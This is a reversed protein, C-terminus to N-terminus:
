GHAVAEFQLYYFGHCFDVDVGTEQSGALSGEDLLEDSLAVLALFQDEDLVLEALDANVAAEQLIGADVDGLHVGAADAAGQHAVEALGQLLDDSLVMGVTDDDLGGADALQGIDNAGHLLDNAM